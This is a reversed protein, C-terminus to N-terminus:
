QLGTGNAQRGRGHQAQDQRLSRIILVPSDSDELGSLRHYSQHPQRRNKRRAQQGPIPDGAGVLYSASIALWRTEAAERSAFGFRLHSEHPTTCDRFYFRDPQHHPPPGPARSPIMLRRDAEDREETFRAICEEVNCVLVEALMRRAGKSVIDDILESSVDLWVASVSTLM